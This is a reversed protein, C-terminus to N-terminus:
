KDVIVLCPQRSQAAYHQFVREYTGNVVACRIRLMSNGSEKVWWAGSRKMRTHCVFKHSSEIGGSGIPYGDEKDTEYHIRERNKELYGGLKRIKEGAEGQRPDMERLISLVEDMESYSLMSLILEAWQKAKLEGEGFQAKAVDHIHEACHFFDLIPRGTPFCATMSPWLWEAGDALLAVRVQDQPIRGAVLALDKRFAEADQIQHWSAIQVTRGKDGVLYLRFGKAEQWRGPGRKENKKRGGTPRTPMHAGDAGVVLMPLSKTSNAVDAIRRAIEEQDPIVLELTAVEGVANLTDHQFHDGIEVGTLSSFQEASEEFPLVAASQVAKEQIDYQHREPAMVLVDDLPHFGTQCTPCYFYPRNLTFEGHLTSLTKRDFRKRKYVKACCPCAAHEQHLQHHYAKELLVQMVAGMLEGRTDSFHRSLTSITPGKDSDFLPVVQDFWKDLAEHALSRAEEASCVVGFNILLPMCM